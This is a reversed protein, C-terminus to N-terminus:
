ADGEGSLVADEADGGFVLLYGVHFVGDVADLPEQAAFVPVRM